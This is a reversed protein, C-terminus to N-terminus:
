NCLQFSDPISYNVFTKTRIAQKLGVLGVEMETVISGLIREYLEHCDQMRLVSDWGLHSLLHVMDQM